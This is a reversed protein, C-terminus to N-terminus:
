GFFSEYFKMSETVITFIEEADKLLYEYLSERSYLAM